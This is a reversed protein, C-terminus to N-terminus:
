GANEHQKSKLIYFIYYGTLAALLLLMFLKIFETM